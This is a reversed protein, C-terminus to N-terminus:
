RNCHAHRKRGNIDKMAEEMLGNIGGPDYPHHLSHHHMCLPELNDVDNMESLRTSDPFESVGKIHHLTGPKGCHCTKSKRTVKWVNRAHKAVATRWKDTGYRTKYEGKTSQGTMTARAIDGCRRSCFLM